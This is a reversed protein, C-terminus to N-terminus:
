NLMYDKPKKKEIEYENIQKILKIILIYAHYVIGKINSFNNRM